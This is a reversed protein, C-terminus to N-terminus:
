HFHEIADPDERVSIFGVHDKEVDLENRLRDLNEVKVAEEVKIREFDKFNVMELM